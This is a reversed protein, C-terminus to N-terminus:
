VGTKLAVNNRHIQQQLWQRTHVLQLIIAHSQKATMAMPGGRNDKNPETMTGEM